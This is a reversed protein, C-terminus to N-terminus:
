RELTLSFTVPIPCTAAQWGYSGCQETAEWAMTLGDGDLVAEISLREAPDDARAMILLGDEVTLMGGYTDSGIPNSFEVEFAGDAEIVMQLRVGLAHLDEVLSPDLNNTVSIETATWTGALNALTLGNGPGTGDGCALVAGALVSSSLRSVM